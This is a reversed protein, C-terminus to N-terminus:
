LMDLLMAAVLAECLLRIPDQEPFLGTTFHYIPPSAYAPTPEKMAPVTGLTLSAAPIAFAMSLM